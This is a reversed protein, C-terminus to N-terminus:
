KKAKWEEALREAEKLQNANLEKCLKDRKETMGQKQAPDDVGDIAASYLACAQVIDKAVGRGEEYCRGLIWKAEPNGLEAGRRFWKVGEIADQQVGEGQMYLQALHFIAEGHDQEAALRYWKVAEAPDAKVGGPIREGAQYFMGMSTQCDANGAEAGKRFYKMAETINMEVGVGNSYVFGIDYWAQNKGADAAKHLWQLGEAANTEVGQGQLLREGLELMADANGQSALANLEEVPTSADIKPSEDTAAAAAFLIVFLSVALAVVKILTGTRKMVSVGKFSLKEEVAFQIKIIRKHESANAADTIM